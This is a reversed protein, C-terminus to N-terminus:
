RRSISIAVWIDPDNNIAMWAEFLAEDMSRTIANLSKPRNLKVYAIHGARSFEIEAM